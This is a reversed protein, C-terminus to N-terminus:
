QSSGGNCIGGLALVVDSCHSGSLLKWAISWLCRRKNRWLIIYRLYATSIKGGTEFKKNVKAPCCDFAGLFAQGYIVVSYVPHLFSSSYGSDCKVTQTKRKSAFFIGSNPKENGGVESPM